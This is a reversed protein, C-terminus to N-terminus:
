VHLTFIIILNNTFLSNSIIHFSVITIYNRTTDQFKVLSSWSFGWLPYDIEPDLNSGPAEWIRLLLLLWDDAVSPKMATTIIM